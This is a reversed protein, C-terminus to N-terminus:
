PRRVKQSTELISNVCQGATAPAAGHATAVLGAAGALLTGHVFERRTLAHQHSRLM